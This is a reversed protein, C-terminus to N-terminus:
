TNFKCFNLSLEYITVNQSTSKNIDSYDYNLKKQNVLHVSVKNVSM